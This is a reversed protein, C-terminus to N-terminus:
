VGLATRIGPSVPYFVEPVSVDQLLRNNYVAFDRGWIQQAGRQSFNIRLVSSVMAGPAGGPRFAEAFNILRLLDRATSGTLTVSPSEAGLATTLPRQVEVSEVADLDVERRTGYADFLTMPMVTEQLHPSPAPIPTPRAQPTATQWTSGAEFTIQANGCYTFGTRGRVPYGIVKAIEFLLDAGDEGAGVHCTLLSLIPQPRDHLRRMHPEWSSMNWTALYQDSTQGSQGAGTAFFGENGHGVMVPLGKNATFADESGRLGSSLCNLLSNVAQDTNSNNSHGPYAQRCCPLFGNDNAADDITVCGKTVGAAMDQAYVYRFDIDTM